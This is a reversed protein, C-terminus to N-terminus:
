SINKIKDDIRVTMFIEDFGKGQLIKLDLLSSKFNKPAWLSTSTFIYTTVSKKNASVKFPM